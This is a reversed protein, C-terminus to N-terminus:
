TYRMATLGSHFRVPAFGPLVGFVLSRPVIFCTWSGRVNLEPRPVQNANDDGDDDDGDIMMVTKIRITITTAM